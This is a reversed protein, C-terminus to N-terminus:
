RRACPWAGPTATAPTRSAARSGPASVSLPRHAGSWSPGPPRQTLVGAEARRAFAPPRELSGLDAAELERAAACPLALPRPPAVEGLHRGWDRGAGARPGGGGLGRRRRGGALTWCSPKGLGAVRPREAPGLM